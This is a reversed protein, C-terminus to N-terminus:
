NTRLTGLNSVFKFDLMGHQFWALSPSPLWITKYPLGVGALSISFYLYFM